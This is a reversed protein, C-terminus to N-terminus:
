GEIKLTGQEMPFSHYEIHILVGNLHIHIAISNYLNVFVFQLYRCIMKSQFFEKKQQHFKWTEKIKKRKHIQINSEQNIVEETKLTLAFCNM